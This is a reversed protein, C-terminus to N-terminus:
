FDSRGPRFLTISSLTDANLPQGLPAKPRMSWDRTTNFEGRAQSDHIVFVIRNSWSAEFQERPVVRMGVAPDGLLIKNDRMGKIVVFHHYGNDVILVIAPIGAKGVEDLSVEFGDALYGNAELFRKMDLLSFGEQQIKQQNGDDFMARFAVEESIPNGYHYTLLTAIAASGCSYDYKQLIVSRVKLERLSWVQLLMRSGVGPTLEVTAAMAGTPAFLMFAFLCVIARTTPM